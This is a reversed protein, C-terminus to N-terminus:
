AGTKPQIFQMPDQILGMPLILFNTLARSALATLFATQSLASVLAPPLSAAPVNAWGNAELWSVFEAADKWNICTGNCLKSLNTMQGLKDVILFAYRQGQPWGLVVLDSTPKVMAWTNAAGRAAASAGEATKYIDLPSVIAACGMLAVAVWIMVIQQFLRAYRKVIPKM